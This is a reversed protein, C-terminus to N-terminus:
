QVYLNTASMWIDCTVSTCSTAREQRVGAVAAVFLLCDCRLVLYPRKLRATTYTPTCSGVNRFTVSSQMGIFVTCWRRLTVDWFTLSSSLSRYTNGFRGDWIVKRWTVVWFVSSNSVSLTRHASPRRHSLRNTAPRDGRLEREIGSCDVHPKHHVFHCQTLNGTGAHTPRWEVHFLVILDLTHMRGLHMKTRILSLFFVYQQHM